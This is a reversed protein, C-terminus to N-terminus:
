NCVELTDDQLDRQIRSGVCALTSYFSMKRRVLVFSVVTQVADKGATHQKTHVFLCFAVGPLKGSM